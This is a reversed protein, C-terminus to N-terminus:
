SDLDLNILLVYLSHINAKSHQPDIPAENPGHVLLISEITARVDVFPWFSNLM